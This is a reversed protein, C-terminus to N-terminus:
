EREAKRLAEQLWAIEVNKAAITANLERELSDSFDATTYFHDPKCDSGKRMAATTRPCDAHTDISIM